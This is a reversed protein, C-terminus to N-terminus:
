SRGQWSKGGTSFALNKKGLSILAEDIDHISVKCIKGKVMGCHKNIAGSRCPLSSFIGESTQNSTSRSLLAKYVCLEGNKQDLLTCHQYIALLWASVSPIAAVFANPDAMGALIASGLLMTELVVDTADIQISGALLDAEGASILNKKQLFEEIGDELLDVGKPDPNGKFGRPLPMLDLPSSVVIRPSM